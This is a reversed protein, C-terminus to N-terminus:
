EAQEIVVVPVPCDILVQQAVDGLM